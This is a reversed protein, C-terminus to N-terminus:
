NDVQITWYLTLPDYLKPQFVLVLALVLTDRLKPPRELSESQRDAPWEIM